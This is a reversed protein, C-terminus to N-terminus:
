YNYTNQLLRYQGKYRQEIKITYTKEMLFLFEGITFKDYRDNKDNKNKVFLFLSPNRDLVKMFNKAARWFISDVIL